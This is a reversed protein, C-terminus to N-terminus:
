GGHHRRYHRAVRARNGGSPKCWSQRPDDKVFYHVCRPAQCARLRLRDDSALFDMATRALASTLLLLPDAAAPRQRVRPPEDQPWELFPTM